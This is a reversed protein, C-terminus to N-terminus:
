ELERDILVSKKEYLPLEDFSKGDAITDPPISDALEGVRAKAQDSKDARTRGVAEPSDIGGGEGERGEERLRRGPSSGGIHGEEEGSM